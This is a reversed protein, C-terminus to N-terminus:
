RDRLADVIRDTSARDEYILRILWYRFWRTLAYRVFVGVAGLAVVVGLLGLIVMDTQERPDEASNSATLAIIEIVVAVAFLVIGIIMGTREPNAQGGTVKMADVERQFEELRPPLADDTM